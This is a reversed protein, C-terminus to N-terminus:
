RLLEAAKKVASVNLSPLLSELTLPDVTQSQRYFQWLLWFGFILMGVVVLAALLRYLRKLNKM